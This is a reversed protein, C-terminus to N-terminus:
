GNFTPDYANAPTVPFNPSGTPGTVYVDHGEVAIGRGADQGGGGLYTSYELGAPGRRTDLRTVFADTPVPPAGNFTQDYANATVPFNASFTLGTLYADRGRVEIEFGRDNSAGGLYTSYELGAAGARRTDLKTVFADEDGPANTTQLADPTTPFNPSFTAGAVYVDHGKVVIGFGADPAGGGLYTSYELSAAGSKRTDIRSVFADQGGNPTSDFAGSTVPFDPSFTAGTVYADHGKVAVALGSDQGSGGLYTSYELGPDIVLPRSRDYGGTAFGYGRGRQALAFRSKVAVRRGGLRQYSVPAVDRLVGRKTQVRLAGASSLSLSEAGRYALRIRGPDAGPRLRFEYKLRGGQGKFAMDIGPWLERYVLEPYSALGTRWRAREGVLYDVGGRARGVAELEARPNAGVFGLGVSLPAAGRAAAQGRGPKVLSVRVGERGFGFAYGPGQAVYRASRHAQGVNAVFGVPASALRDLVERRTAPPAPAAAGQSGGLQAVVGKLSWSVSGLQSGALALVQAGGLAVLLLACAVLRM